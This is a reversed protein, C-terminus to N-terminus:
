APLIAFSLNYLEMKIINGSCRVIIKDPFYGLVTRAKASAYAVAIPETCGVAVLLEDKLISSYDRM